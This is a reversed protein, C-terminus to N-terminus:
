LRTRRPPAPQLAPSGCMSLVRVAREGAVKSSMLDREAQHNSFDAQQKRVAADRECQAKALADTLHQLQDKSKKKLAMLQTLAAHARAASEDAEHSASQACSRQTALDTELLARASQLTSVQQQLEEITAAADRAAKHNASSRALHTFPHYAAHAIL